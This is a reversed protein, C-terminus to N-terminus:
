RILFRVRGVMYRATVLELNRRASAVSKEHIRILNDDTQIITYLNVLEETLQRERDELDVKAKEVDLQAKEINQKRYFGNFLELSARVGASQSTM